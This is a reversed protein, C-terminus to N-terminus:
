AEGGRERRDALADFRKSLKLLGEKAVATRAATAMERYQEARQRLEAVSLAGLPRWAFGRPAAPMMDGKTVFAQGTRAGFINIEEFVGTHPM